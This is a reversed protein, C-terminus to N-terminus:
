CWTRVCRRGSKVRALAQGAREFTRGRSQDLHARGFVQREFVAASGSFGRHWVVVSVVQRQSAVDVVRALVVGAQQERDGARDADVLHVVRHDHDEGHADAQERRRDADAVVAGARDAPDM